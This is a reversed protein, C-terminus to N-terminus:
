SYFLACFIDARDETTEGLCKVPYSPLTSEYM